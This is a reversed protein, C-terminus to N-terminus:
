NFVDEPDNNVQTPQQNGQRKSWPEQFSLSLFKGKANEKIWASIEVVEGKYLGTGKWDPQNAKEKRDNKFLSGQGEKHQFAM